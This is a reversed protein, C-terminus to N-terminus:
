LRDKLFDMLFTVSMSSDCLADFVAKSLRMRKTGKQILVYSENSKVHKIVINLKGKISCTIRGRLLDCHISKFGENEIYFNVADLQAQTM